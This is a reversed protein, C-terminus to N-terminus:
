QVRVSVCVPFDILICAYASICAWASVCQLRATRCFGIFPLSFSLAVQWPRPRSPGMGAGLWGGANFQGPKAGSTSQYKEAGISSMSASLPSILFTQLIHLSAAREQLPANMVDVSASVLMFQLESSACLHIGSLCLSVSLSLSLSLCNAQQVM